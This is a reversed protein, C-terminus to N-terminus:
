DNAAAVPGGFLGFHRIALHWRQRAATAVGCDAGPDHGPPLRAISLLDAIAEVADGGSGSGVHGARPGGRERGDVTLAVRADDQGVRCRIDPLAIVKAARLAQSDRRGSALRSQGTSGAQTRPTRAATHNARLACAAATVGSRTPRLSGDAGRLPAGAARGRLAACCRCLGVLAKMATSCMEQLFRREGGGGGSAAAAPLASVPPETGEIWSVVAAVANSRVLGDRGSDHTSIGQIVRLATSQLTQNGSSAASFRIIGSIIDDNLNHIIDGRAPGETLPLLLKAALLHSSADDRKIIDSLLSVIGKTCLERKMDDSGHALNTLGLLAYRFLEGSESAALSIFVSVSDRMHVLEKADGQTLNVLARVAATRIALGESKSEEALACELFRRILSCAGHEVALISAEDEACFQILINLGLIAEKNDRSDPLFSLLAQIAGTAVLCSRRERVSVSDELAHLVRNRDPGVSVRLDKILKRVEEEMGQSPIKQGAGAGARATPRRPGPAVGPIFRWYIAAHFIISYPTWNPPEM